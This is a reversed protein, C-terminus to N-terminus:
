EAVQSLELWDVHDPGATDAVVPDLRTAPGGVGGATVARVALLVTQGDPWTDALEYNSLRTTGGIALTEVLDDWDPEGAVIETVQIGTAAGLEGYDSYLLNLEIKGAAAAQAHASTIANPEDGVLDGGSDVTVCVYRDTNAEFVGATSRVRVIYYYKTGAVHGLGALDITGNGATVSGVSTDADANAIAAALSLGRYVMYCQVLDGGAALGYIKSGTSALGWPDASFAKVEGETLAHDWVWVGFIQGLWRANTGDARAGINFKYTNPITVPGGNDVSTGGDDLAGDIYTHCTTGDYTGVGLYLQGKTLTAGSRQHSWAAAERVHMRLQNTHSALYFGYDGGSDSKGAVVYLGAGQATGRIFMVAVTLQSMGSIVYGHDVHSTWDFDLGKGCPGAIWDTAPDMSTLAGHNGNGSVDM